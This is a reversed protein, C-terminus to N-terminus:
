LSYEKTSFKSLVPRTTWPMMLSRTHNEKGKGATWKLVRPARVTETGIGARSDALKIYQVLKPHIDLELLPLFWRFVHVRKMTGQRIEDVQVPPVTEAPFACVLGAVWGDAGMLLEELALTDM